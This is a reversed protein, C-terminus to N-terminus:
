APVIEYGLDIGEYFYTLIQHIDYPHTRGGTFKHSLVEFAHRIGKAEDVDADVAMKGDAAKAFTLQLNGTREPTKFSADNKLMEFNGPIPFSHMSGNAPDIIKREVSIMVDGHLDDGVTTYIRDQQIHLVKEFLSFVTQGSQLTVASSRGYLNLLGAALLQNENRTLDNYLDRGSLGGVDSDTLLDALGKFEVNSFVSETSPFLPRAKEAHLFFFEELVKTEGSPLFLPLTKPRYREPQIYVMWDGSPFAPVNELTFPFQNVTVRFDLGVGKANDFTLRVSDQIPKRYANKFDLVIKETNEAM